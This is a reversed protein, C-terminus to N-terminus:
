VIQLRLVPSPRDQQTARGISISQIKNRIIMPRIEQHNKDLNTTQRRTRGVHNPHGTSSRTATKIRKKAYSTIHMTIYQAFLKVKLRKVIETRARRVNLRDKLDAFAMEVTNRNPFTDLAAESDMVNNILLVFWGCDITTSPTDKQTM